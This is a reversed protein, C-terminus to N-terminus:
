VGKKKFRHSYKIKKIKIKSPMMHKPLRKHLFERIDEIIINDKINEEIILEIHQGTIPNKKAVITAFKIGSFKLVEKEVESAMFKLGGINILENNRGTIQIFEGKVDVIDGTNYWGNKNFPSNANLYGEM